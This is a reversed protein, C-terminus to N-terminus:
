NLQQGQGHYAPQCVGDERDDRRRDDMVLSAVPLLDPLLADQLGCNRRREEVGAWLRVHLAAVSTTTVYVPRRHRRDGAREAYFKDFEEPFHKRAPRCPEARKGDHRSHASRACRLDLAM